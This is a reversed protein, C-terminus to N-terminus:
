ERKERCGTEIMRKIITNRDVLKNYETEILKDLKDVIERDLRITIRKTKM